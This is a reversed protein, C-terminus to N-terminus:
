QKAVKMDVCCPLMIKRNSVNMLEGPRVLVNVDATSTQGSSDTVQLSFVYKGVQLGDIKLYPTRVGQLLFLFIFKILILILM